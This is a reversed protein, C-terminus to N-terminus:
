TRSKRRARKKEQGKRDQRARPSGLAAELAALDDLEELLARVYTPSLAEAAQLARAALAQPNYPGAAPPIRDVARAVALAARASGLSERFSSAAEDRLRTLWAP